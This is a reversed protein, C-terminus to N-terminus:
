AGFHSLLCSGNKLIPIKIGKDGNERHFVSVKKIGTPLPSLRDRRSSIGSPTPPVAETQKPIKKM